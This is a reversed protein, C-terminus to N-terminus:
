SPQIVVRRTLLEGEKTSLILLYIGSRIQLLEVSPLSHGDAVPQTWIERGHQDVLRLERGEGASLEVETLDVTFRGDSPNPYVKMAGAAGGLNNELFVVESYSFTEDLDIM